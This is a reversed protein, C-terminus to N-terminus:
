FYSAVLAILFVSSAIALSPVGFLTWPQKDEARKMMQLVDQKTVLGEISSSDDGFMARIASARGVRRMTIQAVFYSALGLVCAFIFHWM